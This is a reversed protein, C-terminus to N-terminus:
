SGSSSLNLGDEDTNQPEMQEKLKVKDYTMNEKATYNQKKWFGRVWKYPKQEDLYQSISGDSVYRSDRICM